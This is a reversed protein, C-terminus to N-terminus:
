AMKPPREIATQPRPVSIGNWRAGVAMVNDIEHEGVENIVVDGPMGSIINSNSSQRVHSLRTSQYRLKAGIGSQVSSVGTLPRMHKFNSSILTTKSGANTVAFSDKSHRKATMREIRAPFNLDEVSDVSTVKVPLSMRTSSRKKARKSGAKMPPEPRHPSRELTSPTLMHTVTNTDFLKGFGLGSKLMRSAPDRLPMANWHSNDARLGNINNVGKACSACNVLSKATFMPDDQGAIDSKM